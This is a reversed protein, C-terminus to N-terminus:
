SYSAPTQRAKALLTPAWSRLATVQNILVIGGGERPEVAGKEDETGAAAAQDSSSSSAPMEDAGPEQSKAAQQNCSSAAQMSLAAPHISKAAQQNSSSAAQM